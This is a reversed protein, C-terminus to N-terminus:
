LTSTAAPFSKYIGAACPFSGGDLVPKGDISVSAPVNGIKEGADM